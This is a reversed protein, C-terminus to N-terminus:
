AKSEWYALIGGLVAGMGIMRKTDSPLTFGSVGGKQIDGM